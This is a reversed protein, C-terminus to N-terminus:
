AGPYGGLEPHDSPVCVMRALHYFPADKMLIAHLKEAYNWDEEDSNLIGEEPELHNQALVTSCHTSLIALVAFIIRANM